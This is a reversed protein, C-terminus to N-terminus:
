CVVRQALANLWNEIWSGAEGDVSFKVLKKVLVKSSITKFVKNYDVREGSM